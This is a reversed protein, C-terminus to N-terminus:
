QNAANFFRLLHENEADLVIDSGINFENWDLFYIVSQSQNTM